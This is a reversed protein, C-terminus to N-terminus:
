WSSPTVGNTLLYRIHSACHSHRRWGFHQSLRGLHIVTLLPPGSRPRPAAAPGRGLCCSVTFVPVLAAAYGAPVAPSFYSVTSPPKQQSTKFLPKHLMHHTPTSLSINSPLVRTCFYTLWCSTFARETPWWVLAVSTWPPERWGHRSIIILFVWVQFSPVKSICVSSNKM